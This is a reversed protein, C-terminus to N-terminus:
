QMLPLNKNYFLKYNQNFINQECVYCNKLCFAELKVNPQLVPSIYANLESVHWYKKKCFMASLRNRPDIPLSSSPSYIITDDEYNYYAQGAIIDFRVGINDPHNEILPFGYYFDTSIQNNNEKDLDSMASTGNSEFELESLELPIYNSLINQFEEFYDRAKLVQHKKLISLALIGQIRKYSLNIRMYEINRLSVHDQIRPSSLLKTVNKRDFDHFILDGLNNNVPITIIHKILQVLTLDFNLAHKLVNYNINNESSEGLAELELLSEKLLYKVDKINMNKFSKNMSMRKQLVSSLLFLLMENNISYWNGETDCYMMSNYDFLFNFLEILSIQSINFLKKFTIESNSNNTLNRHSAIYDEFCSMVPPIKTMVIISNSSGVVSLKNANCSKNQSSNEDNQMESSENNESEIALYSVNSSKERRLHFTENETCIVTPINCNRGNNNVGKLWLQKGNRLSEECNSDLQLLSWSSAAKSYLTHFNVEM